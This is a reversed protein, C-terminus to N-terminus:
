INKGFQIREQWNERKREKGEYETKAEKRATEQIKRRMMTEWKKRDM